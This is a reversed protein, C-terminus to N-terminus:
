AATPRRQAPLHHATPRQPQAQRVAPGRDRPGRKEPYWALLVADVDDIWADMTIAQRGYLVVIVPKGVTALRHILKKRVAPSGSAAGIASSAKRRDVAM